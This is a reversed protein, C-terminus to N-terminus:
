SNPINGTRNVMSTPEIDWPGRANGTLTNGSFTGLGKWVFVGSGKGDRITCTRVVPNGSTRIEVGSKLNRLIDCGDITGAGQHHVLVGSENGDRILCQRVVPNGGTRIEVGAKANGHIECKVIMGAGQDYVFVGGAKGDRIQCDRVVPNGGAGIAVGSATNGTIVCRELRGAGQDCVLVGASRGDRIMCDSVLPAGGSRIEVGSLANGDIRCKEIIGVGKELVHIGFWKGDRIVCDRITPNGGTKIEIGSLANGIIQCKEVLGQGRDEVVVGAGKGDRIVCDRVTPNGGTMIRLGAVSNGSIRCREITGSAQHHVVIGPGTGGRIVCDIVSPNGGEGIAIGAYDNDIIQCREVTGRADDQIILGPGTGGRIVCDSIVPNSDKGMVYVVSGISSTLDCAEITVQGRQVWVAGCRDGTGIARITMNRVAALDATVTVADTDAVEVVIAGRDGEGVIEVMRDILLPERYTGPKVIITGPVTVASLADIISLHDGHGSQDVVLRKRRSHRSSIFEAVGVVSVAFNLGETDRIGFSAIGILRGRAEVLAGGSNGPNMSADTQVVPVGDFKRFGSVIGRSISAGGDIVDPRPFGVLFVPEGVRALTIACEITPIPVHFEVLALDAVEDITLVTGAVRHGTSTVVTVTKDAGVVHANTVIGEAFRVGSGSGQSSVVQVVSQRVAEFMDTVDPVPGAVVDADPVREVRNQRGFVRVFESTTPFRDGPIKALMRSVAREVQEPVDPRFQRVSPPPNSVVKFMLAADSIGDFPLEGTLLEYATVGIAYRDSAPGSSENRFQEPSIYPFTGVLGMVSQPVSLSASSRVLPRALGFDMLWSRGSREVMINGPKIDGHIILAGHALDLADGIPELFMRVDDITMPGKDVALRALTIGDIYRMAIYHVGDVEGFRYIAPIAPHDLSAVIRAERHFRRVWDPDDSLEAKLMKLAVIRGLVVERAKWVTGFGGSGIAELLDFDGFRRAPEGRAM